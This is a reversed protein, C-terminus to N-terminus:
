RTVASSPPPVADGAVHHRGGVRVFSHGILHGVLRARATDGFLLDLLM